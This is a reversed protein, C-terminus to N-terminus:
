CAITQEALRRGFGHEDAAEIAFRLVTGAALPPFGDSLFTSSTGVRRLQTDANATGARAVVGAGPIRSQDTIVVSYLWPTNCPSPAPDSSPALKILRSCRASPPSCAEGVTDAIEPPRGVVSRVQVVRPEGAGGFSLTGAFPGETLIRSGDVTVTLNSSGGPAITGRAPAASLGPSSSQTTYTVPAGGPNRLALTGRVAGVTADAKPLNVTSLSTEIAGPTAPNTVATTAGVVTTTGPDVSTTTTSPLSTTSEFSPFTAELATTTTTAVESSGDDRSALLLGGALLLLAVFAAAAALWRGRGGGRGGGNRPAVPPGAPQAPPGPAFSRPPFGNPMWDVRPESRPAAM